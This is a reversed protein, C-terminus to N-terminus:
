LLDDRDGRRLREVILKADQARARPMVLLADDCSVVCLDNVGLLAILRPKDGLQRVLNNKADILVAAGDVANGDADRESLEWATQWSGLDSWGFDGSVVNLPAEREMVGYDISMSELAAFVAATERAEAEPGHRSAASIRELGRALEPMHREIAALMTGARFFFMGANWLYRDSRLYEQARARTPKEVFRAVRYLGTGLVEGAEIYGYGTEPRTPRVGITTIPGAAASELARSLADRYGEVDRVYQDSPIVMVLADPDRRAILSTAWGISPATNRAVPEGIFASPPLRSLASATAEVLHAGTAIVMRELGCLPELRHVTQEILSSSEGPAIPLLQKPVSRRSAPWFRTGSGGALIVAYVSNM